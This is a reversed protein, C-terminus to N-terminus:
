VNRKDWVRQNRIKTRDPSLWEENTLLTSFYGTALYRNIERFGVGLARQASKKTPYDIGLITVSQGVKAKREESLVKGANVGVIEGTKWRPDDKPARFTNGHKDKASVYNANKFGGATNNHQNYFRPNNRADVKQLFRTEYDEAEDATTFTHVRDVTFAHPDSDCLSQILHSSTLYGVLLESPHCGRKIRSGAYYKGTATERIIYFYPTSMNSNIHDCM